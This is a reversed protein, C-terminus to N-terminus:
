KNNENGKILNENYQKREEKSAIRASIIRTKSHRITYVVAYIISLIKGIILFRLENNQPSEVIIKNADDFIKIVYEFDVSHKDKNIANKNEDWEFEM